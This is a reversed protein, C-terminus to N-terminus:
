LVKDGMEYLETHKDYVWFPGFLQGHNCNKAKLKSEIM